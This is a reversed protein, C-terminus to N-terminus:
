KGPKAPTWVGLIAAQSSPVDFGLAAWVCMTLSVGHARKFGGQEICSWRYHNKGNNRFVCLRDVGNIEIIGEWGGITRKLIPGSPIKYTKM